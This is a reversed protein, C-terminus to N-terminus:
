LIMHDVSNKNRNTEKGRRQIRFCSPREFIRCSMAYAGQGFCLCLDVADLFLWAALPLLQRILTWRSFKLHSLDLLLLVALIKSSFLVVSGFSSARLHLSGHLGDDPNRFDFDMERAQFSDMTIVCESKRDVSQPAWFYVLENLPGNFM